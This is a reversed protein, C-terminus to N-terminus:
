LINKLVPLEKEPIHKVLWQLSSVKALADAKEKTKIYAELEGLNTNIYDIESHDILMSWIHDIKVWSQKFDNYLAIAKDWNEADIYGELEILQEQLVESQNGVYYMSILSGSIIVILFFIALLFPKMSCRM